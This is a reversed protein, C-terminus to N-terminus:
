GLEVKNRLLMKVAAVHCWFASSAHRRKLPTGTFNDSTGVVVMVINAPLLGLALLCPWGWMRLLPFGSSTKLFAAPSSPEMLLRTCM